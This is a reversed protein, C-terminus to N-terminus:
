LDETFHPIVTRVAPKSIYICTCPSMSRWMWEERTKIYYWLLYGCLYFFFWSLKKKNAEKSRQIYAYYLYMLNGQMHTAPCWSITWQQRQHRVKTCNGRKGMPGWLQDSSMLPLSHCCGWFTLFVCVKIRLLMHLNHLITIQIWQEWPLVKKQIRGKMSKLMVFINFTPYCCQRLSHGFLLLVFALGVLFM